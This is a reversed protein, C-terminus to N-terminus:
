FWKLNFTLNTPLVCIFFVQIVNSIIISKYHIFILYKLWCVVRKSSFTNLIYLKMPDNYLFSHIKAYTQKCTIIKLPLFKRKKHLLLCFNQILKLKKKDVFWRFYISFSARLLDLLSRIRCATASWQGWNSELRGQDCPLDMIPAFKGIKMMYAALASSTDRGTEKTPQTGHFCLKTM